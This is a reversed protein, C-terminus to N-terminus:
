ERYPGFQFVAKRPKDRERHIVAEMQAIKEPYREALNRSEQVDEKLNYLELVADPNKKVDRKVGKWDGMRVAIQGGYGAFDWFLFEHDPQADPNGTLEPLISLGDTEAPPAIGAIEALTSLLDYHAGIHDSVTGPPVKGPWRV